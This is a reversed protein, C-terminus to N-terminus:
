GRKEQKVTVTLPITEGADEAIGGPLHARIKAMLISFDIPKAVYDNMGSALYDERDGAMANATMAIIPVNSAPGSLARIRQTAEVGNMVPMRIDMLVLDYVQRQVAHVAEVGDGVIDIDIGAKELAAAILKQNIANDEAVLLRPHRAHGSQASPVAAKAPLKTVGAGGSTRLPTLLEGLKGILKDQLVPKPCAADFGLARAQQDFAIGGPSCIILKLGAYQPQDRIMKRLILGDTEPLTQDIIALDYPSGRRLGEALTALAAQADAVCEVEAGFSELQLGFIRRSVANDDVVLFRRGAFGAPAMRDAIREAPPRSSALRLRVTFTSGKELLSEVTVQGGMLRTLEQCLALGLGTGEFNRPSAGDGHPFREFIQGLQDRAFGLGTDSVAISLNHGIRDDGGEHRLEIGVGGNTTAKVANSVLNALIQRIRGGDGRLQEPLAPDIYAGLELRKAGAQPAFQMVVESVVDALAFNADELRLAGAEIESLDLIDNLLALLSQGSEHVFQAYERQKGELETELLLHSFGIIGNMATRLEHGTMALFERKSRLLARSAHMGQSSGNAILRRLPRFIFLGSLLATLLLAAACALALYLSYAMSQRTSDALTLLARRFAPHLRTESLKRARDLLGAHEETYVGNAQVIPRALSFFEAAAKEIPEEASEGGHWLTHLAAPMSNAGLGFRAREAAPDIGLGAELERWRQEGGEHGTVRLAAFVAMAGRYESNLKAAGEPPTGQAAAQALETELRTVAESASAFLEAFRGSDRYALLTHVGAAIMCLVIAAIAGTALFLRRRLHDPATRQTVNNPERDACYWAIGLTANDAFSSHKLQKDTLWHSHIKLWDFDALFRIQQDDINITGQRSGCSPTAGRGGATRRVRMGAVGARMREGEAWVPVAMLINKGKEPKISAPHKRPGADWRTDSQSLTPPMIM